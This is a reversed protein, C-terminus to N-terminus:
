PCGQRARSIHGPRGPRYRRSTRPASTTDLVLQSLREVPTGGNRLTKMAARTDEFAPTARKQFILPATTAGGGPPLQLEGDRRGSGSLGGGHAGERGCPGAAAPVDEAKGWGRRGGLIEWPSNGQRLHENLSLGYQGQGTRVVAITLVRCSCM